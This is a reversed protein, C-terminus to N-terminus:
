LMRFRNIGILLFASCVLLALEDLTGLRSDDKVLEFVSTSEPCIVNSVKDSENLNLRM